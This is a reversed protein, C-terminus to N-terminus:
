PIPSTCCATEPPALALSLEANTAAFAVARAEDETVLLTVGSQEAGDSTAGDGRAIVLAARAVTVAEASAGEVLVVTPDFAALVDVVVGSPPRYGDASVVRIARHGSPVVADLGTRTRPALARETVVGDRLVPVTAIRGTAAGLAHVADGPVVSAHRSVARLDDPAITAGLPIDHAAILVTVPKGLDRARRHLEALDGSVVRATTLALVAAAAWALLVRPSRRM